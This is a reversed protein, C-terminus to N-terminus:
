GCSKVARGDLALEIAAGIREAAAETERDGVHAYRLTMSPHRHGLLRSVVPLPVGQLVAHSAFTHRLDHLRVDELGADKRISNWLKLDRSFPRDPNLPSPFVLASGSRPQRKLIALAPANLLVRRPGTKADALNLTDADVDRWRLTRIESKRCGTLLLLRIIDAQRARSPGAGAHCDLAHHLRRIEQRSLFRTLKPRPNRKVGRAPNTLLHGCAIAHNLIRRLFGLAENAGGPATRSYEDFWRTVGARDIRDLPLSGFTPLLRAAIVKAVAKRTSPKGRGLCAQGSGAVFEAFTPVAGREPGASRAGTEIALCKARAEEVGTLTASGLTIRRSGDEGKRCYMFSRHGSPRVRVGLGALRTDWVTYERASPALRVVNADTLRRRRAAM